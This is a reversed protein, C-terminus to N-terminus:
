DLGITALQIRIELALNVLVDHVDGSPESTQTKFPVLGCKAVVQDVHIDNALQGFVVEFLETQREAVALADQLRDGTQRRRLRRGGTGIAAGRARSSASRRGM